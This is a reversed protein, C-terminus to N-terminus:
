EALEAAAFPALYAAHLERDAVEALVLEAEAPKGALRLAAGLELAILGSGNAERGSERAGRRAYSAAQRYSRVAVDFRAAAAHERAWLHHALSQLAAWEFEAAPSDEAGPRAATALADVAEGLGAGLAQKCDLWGAIEVPDAVGRLQAAVALRRRQTADLAAISSSGVPAGQALGADIPAPAHEPAHERADLEARALNYAAGPHGPDLQLAGTFRQIATEFDGTRAFTVGSQIWGEVSHPHAELLRSWLIQSQQLDANRASLSLALGSEPELELALGLARKAEALRAAVQAPTSGLALEAGVELTEALAAGHRVRSWAGPALVLWILAATWAPASRWPGREFADHERRLVTGICVACLLGAPANGLLSSNAAATTLLAVAGASLSAGAVERDAISQLARLLALGLLAIWAAGGLWGFEAVGQLWDNHAHDVETEGDVQRQLSSLEIEAPDRFPPFASAFQGPGAGFAGAGAILGLTGRWISLRVPVGGLDKLDTSGPADNEIAVLHAPAALEGGAALVSDPEATAGKSSGVIATFLVIGGMAGLTSRVRQIEQSWPSILALAALGVVLALCSTLVPTGVAHVGFAAFACLGLVRWPGRRTLGLWGGAIAGLLGVQSTAGSNGLFGALAASGDASLFGLLAPLMTVLTILCALRIVARREPRLLSAGVLLGYGLLGLQLTAGRLGFGDAAGLAGIASSLLVLGMLLPAGRTWGPRRGMAVLLLVGPLCGLVAWGRASELPLPDLDRLVTPVPWVLLLVPALLVAAILM